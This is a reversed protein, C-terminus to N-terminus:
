KKAHEMRKYNIYFTEYNIGQIYGAWDGYPIIGSHRNEEELLDGIVYVRCFHKDNTHINIIDKHIPKYLGSAVGEISDLFNIFSQKAGDGTLQYVEGVVYTRENEFIAPYNYGTDVMKFDPLIGTCIFRSKDKLMYHRPQGSMFTGYTFLKIIGSEYEIM